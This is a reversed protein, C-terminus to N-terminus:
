LADAVALWDAMWPCGSREPLSGSRAGARAQQAARRARGRGSAAERELGRLEQEVRLTPLDDDALVERLEEVSMDLDEPEGKAQPTSAALRSVRMCFGAAYLMAISVADTRSQQTPVSTPFDLHLLALCPLAPNEPKLVIRTAPGTRTDDM